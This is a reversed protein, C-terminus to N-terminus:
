RLTGARRVLDYQSWVQGFADEASVRGEIAPRIVPHKRLYDRMAQQFSAKLVRTNRAGAFRCLVDEPDGPRDCTAVTFVDEDRVLRDGVKMWVVRKGKSAGLRVRVSM